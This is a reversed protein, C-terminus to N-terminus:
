PCNMEEDGVVSSGNRSPDGLGLLLHKPHMLVTTMLAEGCPPFPRCVQM